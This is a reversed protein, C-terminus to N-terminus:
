RPVKVGVTARSFGGSGGLVSLGLSASESETHFFVCVFIFLYKSLSTKIGVYLCNFAYVSSYSFSNICLYNLEYM